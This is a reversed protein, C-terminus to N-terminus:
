PLVGTRGGAEALFTRLLFDCEQPTLDFQLGAEDLIAALPAEPRERRRDSIWQIAKRLHEGHPQLDTSM